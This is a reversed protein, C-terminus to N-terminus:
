KKYDLKRGSSMDPISAYRILKQGTTNAKMSDMITKQEERILNAADKDLDLILKIMNDLEQKMEKTLAAKVRPSAAEELEKLQEIVTERKAIIEPVCDWAEIGSILEESLHLCQTLLAKKQQLYEYATKISM